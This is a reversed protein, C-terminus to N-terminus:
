GAFPTLSSALLFIGERTIDAINSAPTTSQLGILIDVAYSLERDIHQVMAYLPDAMPIKPMHVLLEPSHVALACRMLEYRQFLPETLMYQVAKGSPFDFLFSQAIDRAAKAAALQHDREM